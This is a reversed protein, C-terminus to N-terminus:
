DRPRGNHELLIDVVQLFEADPIQPNGQMWQELASPLAGIRKSLAPIGGVLKAAYRLARSRTGNPM